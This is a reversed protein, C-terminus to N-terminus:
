YVGSRPRYYTLPIIVNTGARTGRVRLGMQSPEIQGGSPDHVPLQLEGEAPESPRFGLAM